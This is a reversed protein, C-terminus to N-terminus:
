VLEAISGNAIAVRLEQQTVRRKLGVGIRACPKASIIYWAESKGNPLGMAHVFTDTGHVQISLPESSGCEGVADRAGDIDSWPKLDSVGWPKHIARVAAYEIPM